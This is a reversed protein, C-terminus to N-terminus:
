TEPHTFITMSRMKIVRIIRLWMKKDGVVQLKM